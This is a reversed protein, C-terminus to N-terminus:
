EGTGENLAQRAATEHAHQDVIREGDVTVVTVWVPQLEHWRYVKAIGSHEAGYDTMFDAVEDLFDFSQDVDGVVFLNPKELEEVRRLAVLIDPLRNRLAVILAANASGTGGLTRTEAIFGESPKTGIYRGMRKWEGPTAEKALGELEDALTDTM